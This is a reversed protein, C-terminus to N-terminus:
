GDHSSRTEEHRAICDRFVDLYQPGVVDPSWNALARERARTGLEALRAASELVWAMGEALGAPDYPDALYGTRGHEVADPMGTANFAVVPTGCAQAETATQPLNEQRSPVVVADFASYL